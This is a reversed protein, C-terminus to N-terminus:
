VAAITAALLGVRPGALERGLLGIAVAAGAGVLSAVVKHTTVSTGGLFSSISLVMPWLPPHFATAVARHRFLWVSPDAFGHGAALLNAQGHYFSPDGGLVQAPLRLAQGLRTITALVFILASATRFARPEVLAGEPPGSAERGPGSRSRRM